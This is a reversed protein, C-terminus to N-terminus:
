VNSREMGLRDESTPFGCLDGKRGETPPLAGPETSNTDAFHKGGRQRHTNPINAEKLLGCGGLESSPRCSGLELSLVRPLSM